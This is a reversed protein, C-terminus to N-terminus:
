TLAVYVLAKQDGNIKVKKQKTKVKKTTSSNSSLGKHKGLLCKVVRAVGGARFDVLKLFVFRDETWFKSFWHKVDTM